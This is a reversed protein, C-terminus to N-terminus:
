TTETKARTPFYVTHLDSFVDRLLCSAEDLENKPYKKFLSPSGFDELYRTLLHKSGRFAAGSINPPENM